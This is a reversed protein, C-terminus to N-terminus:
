LKSSLWMNSTIPSPFHLEPDNDILKRNTHTSFAFWTAIELSGRVDPSGLFELLRLKKALLCVGKHVIHLLYVHTLM